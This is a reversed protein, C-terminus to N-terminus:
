GIARLQDSIRAYYKIIDSAADSKSMPRQRQNIANVASVGAMPISRNGLLNGLHQNLIAATSALKNSNYFNNILAESGKNFWSDSGVGWFPYWKGAPVNAKGGSGTSCYFPIVHGNFNVLVIPRRGLDVIFTKGGNVTPMQVLSIKDMLTTLKIALEKQSASLDEKVTQSSTKGNIRRKTQAACHARQSFGQPNDCNISKKYTNSWSETVPPATRKIREWWALKYFEPLAVM